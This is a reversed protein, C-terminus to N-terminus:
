KMRKGVMQHLLTQSVPLNTCFRFLVYVEVSMRSCTHGSGGITAERLEHTTMRTRVSECYVPVYLREIIQMQKLENIFVEDTNINNSTHVM